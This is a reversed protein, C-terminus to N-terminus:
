EVVDRIYSTYSDSKTTPFRPINSETLEFYKVHLRRGIFQNGRKYLDQREERTGKPRINFTDGSETKCIWVILNEDNKSTDKEFTFDGMGDVM